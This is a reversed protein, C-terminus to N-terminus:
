RLNPAYPAPQPATPAPDNPVSHMTAYVYLNVTLAYGEVDQVFDHVFPRPLAAWRNTEDEYAFQAEVFACPRKKYSLLILYPSSPNGELERKEADPLNTELHQHFVPHSETVREYSFNPDSAPLEKTIFDIVPWSKVKWFQDQSYPYADECLLLFGGRKFYEALIAKEKPTLVLPHIADFEMECFPASLSLLSSLPKKQWYLLHKFVPENENMADLMSKSLYDDFEQVEPDRSDNKPVLETWSFDANASDMATAPLAASLAIGLWALSLPLSLRM